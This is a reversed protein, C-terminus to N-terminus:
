YRGISWSQDKSVPKWNALSLNRKRQKRLRSQVRSPRNRVKKSNNLSKMSNRKKKNRRPKLRKKNNKWKRLSRLKQSKKRRGVKKSLKREKNQNRRKDKQSKRSKKLKKKKPNRNKKSKKLIQRKEKKKKRRKKKASEINFTLDKQNTLTSNSLEVNISEKTHTLYNLMLKPDMSHVMVKMLKLNEAGNKSVSNLSNSRKTGNTSPALTNRQGPQSTFSSSLALSRTSTLCSISSTVSRRNLRIRGATFTRTM